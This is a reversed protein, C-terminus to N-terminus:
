DTTTTQQKHQLIPLIYPPILINPYLLLTPGIYVSWHFGCGCWGEGKEGDGGDGEGRWGGFGGFGGMFWDRLAVRVLQPAHQHAGGVEHEVGEPGDDLVGHGLADAVLYM